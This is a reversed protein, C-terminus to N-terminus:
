SSSAVIVPEDGVTALPPDIVTTAGQAPPLQPPTAADACFRRKAANREWL